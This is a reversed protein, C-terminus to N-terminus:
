EGVEHYRVVYSETIGSFWHAATFVMAIPQENTLADPKTQDCEKIWHAHLITSEDYHRRYAEPAKATICGLLRQAVERPQEEFNLQLFRMSVPLVLSREQSDFFPSNIATIKAAQM